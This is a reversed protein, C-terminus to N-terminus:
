EVLKQLNRKIEESYLMLYNFYKCPMGFRNIVLRFIIVVTVSHITLVCKNIRAHTILKMAKMRKGVMLAKGGRWLRMKVSHTRM